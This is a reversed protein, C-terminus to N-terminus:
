GQTSLFHRERKRRLCLAYLLACRVLLCSSRSLNLWKRLSVWFCHLRALAENKALRMESSLSLLRLVRNLNTLFQLVSLLPTAVSVCSPCVYEEGLSLALASLRCNELTKEGIEFKMGLKPGDLCGLIESITKVTLPMDLSSFFEFGFLALPGSLIGTFM